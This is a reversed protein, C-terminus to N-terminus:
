LRPNVLQPTSNLTQVAERVSRPNLSLRLLIFFCGFLISVLLIFFLICDSARAGNDEEKAAALEKYAVGLENELHTKILDEMVPKKPGERDIAIM